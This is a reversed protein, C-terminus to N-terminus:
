CFYGKISISSYTIFIHFINDSSLHLVQPQTFSKKGTDIQFISYLFYDTLLYGVKKGKTFGYVENSVQIQWAYQIHSIQWKKLKDCVPNCSVPNELYPSTTLPILFKAPYSPNKILHLSNFLSCNQVNLGKEFSFVVNQLYQVDILILILMVQTYM